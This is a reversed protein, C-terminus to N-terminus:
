TSALIMQLNCYLAFGLASAGTQDSRPMAPRSDSVDCRRFAWYGYHEPSPPDRVFKMCSPMFRLVACQLKAILSATIGMTLHGAEGKTQTGAKRDRARQGLGEQFKPHPGSLCAQGPSHDRCKDKSRTGSVDSSKTQTVATQLHSRPHIHHGRSRGGQAEQDLWPLSRGGM